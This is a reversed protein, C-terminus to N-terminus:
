KKGKRMWLLAAAAVVVIAVVAIAAYVYTMTNDAPPEVVPPSTITQTAEITPQDSWAYGYSWKPRDEGLYWAIAKWTGKVNPTFTVTAMGNADTTATMNTDVGNPDTFTVIISANPFPPNLTIVNDSLDYSRQNLGSLGVTVTVSDSSNLDVTNRDLAIAIAMPQIPHDRFCRLIGDGSGVYLGNDYIAPSSHMSGGTTFWSLPAGDSANWMTLGFSDSGCYVASSGNYQFGAYVPSAWIEWGGWAQWLVTSGSGRNYQGWYQSNNFTMSYPPGFLSANFSAMTPGAQTYIKGGGATNGRSSGTAYADPVYTCSGDSNETLIWAAELQMCIQGSTCNYAIMHRAKVGMYLITDKGTAVAIPTASPLGPAATRYGGDIAPQYYRTITPPTVDFKGLPAGATKVMAGTDANIMYVYGGEDDTIAGAGTGPNNNNDDFGWTVQYVTNNEIAVSSVCPGGTQVSWVLSGGMTLCYTANSHISGCYIKGNYLIPSPKNNFQQQTVFPIYPGMNYQWQIEGTNADLSYMNGDDPGIIVQSGDASVAPTSYYGFLSTSGGLKRKWILAGNYADLCYINNDNCGVYVKGKAVVPSSDIGAEATFTWAPGQNLNRPGLSRTVGPNEVNGRWMNWPQPEAATSIVTLKGYLPLFLCGYALAPNNIDGRPPEQGFEWLKEGTYADWCAWGAQQRERGTTASGDSEMGFIKGDAIVNWYYGIYYTTLSAWLKKGTVADYCKTAGTLGQGLDHAYFRGYAYRSGYVNFARVGTEDNQWLVEGTSANFGTTYPSQCDTFLIDHDADYSGSYGVQSPYRTEWIKTGDTMNLAYVVYACYSGTYLRGGGVAMQPAGGAEEITYNWMWRGSGIQIKNAETSNYRNRDVEPNDLTWCRMSSVRPTQPITGPGVIMPTGKTDANMDVIYSFYAAGGGMSNDRWYFKGDSDFMSNGVLMHTADVQDIRGASTGSLLGFGQLVCWNVAHTYPHFSITVTRTTGNQLRIGCTGFVQGDFAAINGTFSYIQANVPVGTEYTSVAVNNIMLSTINAMQDSEWIVTPSDPAPGGTSGTRAGGPPAGNQYGTWGYADQLLDGYQANQYEADSRQTSVWSASNYVTGHKPNPNWTYAGAFIISSAMLSVLIAATLIATNRKSNKMKKVM